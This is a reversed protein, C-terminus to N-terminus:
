SRRTTSGATAGCRLASAFCRACARPRPACSRSGRSWGLFAEQLFLDDVAYSSINLEPFVVLDVGREDAERALGITQEVNFAVDGVSALPTAAATRVYGHRHIAEFPPLKDKRGMM